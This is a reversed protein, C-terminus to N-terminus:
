ADMMGLLEYGTTSDVLEDILPMPYHDNSWAKNLDRINICVSVKENRTQSEM